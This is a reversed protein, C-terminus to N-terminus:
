MIEEQFVYEKFFLDSEKVCNQIFLDILSYFSFVQIEESFHISCFLICAAIDLFMTDIFM